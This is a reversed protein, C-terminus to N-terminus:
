STATFATAVNIAQPDKFIFGFKDGMFLSLIAPNHTLEAYTYEGFKEDLSSLKEQWTGGIGVSSPVLTLHNTRHFVPSSPSPTIIAATTPIFDTMTGTSDKYKGSIFHWNFGWLGEIMDGRLVTDASANNYVAWETFQDNNRLHKKNIANVWIDTPRETNLGGQRRVLADLQDGIKTTSVSWKANAPIIGNLTTLNNAPIGLSVAMVAGSSDELVTGAQGIYVTGASLSKAIVLEKTIKQRLGFEEFVRTVSDIGKAQLERNDPNRLATLADGDVPIKNFITYCSGFRKSATGPTLERAVGGRVNMPAPESMAPYYLYSFEDAREQRPTGTWFAATFPFDVANYEQSYRETLVDPDLLLELTKDPM